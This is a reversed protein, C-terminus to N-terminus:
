GPILKAPSKRGRKIPSAGRHIVQRDRDGFLSKQKCPLVRKSASRGEGGRVGRDRVREKDM